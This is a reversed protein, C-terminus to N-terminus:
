PAAAPLEATWRLCHPAPSDVRLAGGWASLVFRAVSVAVADHARGRGPAFFPQEARNLWPEVDAAVRAEMSVRWFGDHGECNLTPAGDGAAAAESVLSFLVAPLCFDDAAVVAGDPVDCALDLGASGARSLVEDIADALSLPAPSASLARGLLRLQAVVSVALRSAAEMDAVVAAAERDAWVGDEPVLAEAGSLAIHLLNNLEHAFGRLFGGLEPDADRM